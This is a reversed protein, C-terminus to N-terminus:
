SCFKSEKIFLRIVEFFEAHKMGSQVGRTTALSRIFHESTYSRGSQSKYEQLSDCKARINEDNLEVFCNSESKLNNWILEYGLITTNKFARIAESTVTAHDQHIDTTNPVLVLDFKESSRVKILDDLILQRNSPFTRVKYDLVKVNESPLGLKSTANIVEIRLCNKEFGEPVSDEAASFAIYQVDCGLSIAKHILGGAGLEGDDTHPALVLIKKFEKLM